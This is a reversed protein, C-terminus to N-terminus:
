PIMAIRLPQRGQLYQIFSLLSAKLHHLGKLDAIQALDADTLCDIALLNLRQLQTLDPLMSM